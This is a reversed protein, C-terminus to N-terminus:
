LIDSRERQIVYFPSDECEKTETVELYRDFQKEYIPEIEENMVKLMAEKPSQAKIIYTEEKTKILDIRYTKNNM